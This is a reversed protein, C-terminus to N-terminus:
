FHRSAAVNVADAARPSVVWPGFKIVESHLEASMRLCGGSLRSMINVNMSKKFM